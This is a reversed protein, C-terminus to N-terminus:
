LCDSCYVVVPENRNLRTATIPSLTELPISIAGPLHADEYLRAPLVEVLQAGRDLLKRLEDRDIVTLM